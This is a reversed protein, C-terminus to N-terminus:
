VLLIDENTGEWNYNNRLSIKEGPFRPEKTKLYLGAGTIEFWDLGLLIDHDEHDM